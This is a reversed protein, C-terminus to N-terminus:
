QRTLRSCCFHLSSTMTEMYNDQHLPAVFGVMQDATICLTEDNKSEGRQTGEFRGLPKDVEEQKLVPPVVAMRPVSTHGSQYLISYSPIIVSPKLTGQKTRNTGSGQFSPLTNTVYNCKNDKEKMSVNIWLSVQTGKSCRRWGREELETLRYRISVQLM